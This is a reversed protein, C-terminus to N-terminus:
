IGEPGLSPSPQFRGQNIPPETPYHVPVKRFKKRFPVDPTPRPHFNQVNAAARTIKEPIEMTHLVDTKVIIRRIDLRGTRGVAVAGGEENPIEALDLAQGVATEIKNEGFAQDMVQRIRRRKVQQLERTPGQPRPSTQHCQVPHQSGPLAKPRPIKDGPVPTPMDPRQGFIADQNARNERSQLRKHVISNEPKGVGEEDNLGGAGDPTVIGLTRTDLPADAGTPPVVALPRTNAELIM